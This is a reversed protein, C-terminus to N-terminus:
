MSHSAAYDMASRDSGVVFYVFSVFFGSGSGWEGVGRAGPRPSSAAHARVRFAQRRLSMAVADERCRGAGPSPM